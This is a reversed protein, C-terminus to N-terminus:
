GVPPLTEPPEKAEATKAAHPTVPGAKRRLWSGSEGASPQPKAANASREEPSRFDPEHWGCHECRWPWHVRKMLASILVVGWVGATLLTMMGHLKWDFRARVFPQQHRCRPCFARISRRPM